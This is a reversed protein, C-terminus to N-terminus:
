NNRFSIKKNKTTVIQIIYEKKQHTNVTPSLPLGSARTTTINYPLKKPTEKREEEGM